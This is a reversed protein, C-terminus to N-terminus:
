ALTPDNRELVVVMVYSDTPLSDMQAVLVYRHVEQVAEYQLDRHHLVHLHVERLAADVEV